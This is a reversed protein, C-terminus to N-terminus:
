GRAALAPLRLAWAGDDREVWEGLDISRGQDDELEVFVAPPDDAGGPPGTFM